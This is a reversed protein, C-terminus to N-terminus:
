FNSTMRLQFAMTYFDYIQPNTIWVAKLVNTMSQLDRSTFSEALLSHESPLIFENLKRAVASWVSGQLAILRAEDSVTEFQLLENFQTSLMELEYWSNSKEINTLQKSVIEDSIQRASSRNKIEVLYNKFSVTLDTAKIFSVFRAAAFHVYEQTLYGFKKFMKEDQNRSTEVYRHELKAFIDSFNSQAAHSQLELLNIMEDSIPMLALQRTHAISSLQLFLRDDFDVSEDDDSLSFGYATGEGVEKEKGHDAVDAPHDAIAVDVSLDDMLLHAGVIERADNFQLYAMLFDENPVISWLVQRAEMAYEIGQSSYFVFDPFRALSSVGDSIVNKGTKNSPTDSFALLSDLLTEGFLYYRPANFVRNEAGPHMLGLAKPPSFGQYQKETVLDALPILEGRRVLSSIEDANVGNLSQSDVLLRNIAKLDLMKHLEMSHSDIVISPKPMFSYLWGHEPQAIVLFHSLSSNEYIRLMYPCDAFQGHADFNAFSTSQSALIAQLNAKVVESYSWKQSQPQIQRSNAYALAMAVDAVGRAARIEDAGSQDSLRFYLLCTVVAILCLCAGSIVLLVRWNLAIKGSTSDVAANDSQIQKDGDEEFDMSVPFLSPSLETTKKKEKEIDRFM